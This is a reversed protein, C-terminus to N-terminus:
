GSRRTRTSPSPGTAWRWRGSSSARSSSCRWRTPRAGSCRPGLAPLRRRLPPVGRGCARGPAAAQAGGREGLQLPEGRRGQDGAERVRHGPRALAGNRAYEQAKANLALWDGKTELVHLTLDAAQALGTRTRARARHAERVPRAGRADSRARLLGGGGPLPHRARGQAEPFREAYRDCAAVLRQEAETLPVATTDRRHRRPTRLGGKGQKEDVRTPAAQARGHEADVLRDWALVADYAATARYREDSVERATPRDPVRFDVVREYQEAAARWDGLGWAVEAAYFSLNFAHDSTWEPDADRAFASLYARYVDAALRYTRPSGTRQAEQHYTTVLTRLAEEAADFGARLSQPSGANATWWRTGPHVCRPWASRRSASATATTSGTTPGCWRRSGPRRRPRSRSPRSRPRTSGCRARCSAPM